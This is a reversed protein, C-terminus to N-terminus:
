FGTFFATAIFIFTMKSWGAGTLKKKILIKSFTKDLWAKKAEDTLSGKLITHM